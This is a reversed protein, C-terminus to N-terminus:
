AFFNVKPGQAIMDAKNQEKFADSELKKLSRLPKFYCGSLFRYVSGLIVGISIIIFPMSSGGINCEYNPICAGNVLCGAPCKGVPDYSTKVRGIKYTICKDNELVLKYAGSKTTGSCKSLDNQDTKASVIAFALAVAVLLVSTIKM